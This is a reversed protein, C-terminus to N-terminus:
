SQNERIQHGDSDASRILKFDFNETCILYLSVKKMWNLHSVSSELQVLLEIHLFFQSTGSLGQNGWMNSQNQLINNKKDISSNECEMTEKEAFKRMRRAAHPPWSGNHCPEWSSRSAVPRSVCCLDPPFSWAPLKFKQSTGRLVTKTKHVRWINIIRQNLLAKDYSAWLTM